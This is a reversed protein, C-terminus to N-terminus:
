EEVNYYFDVPNRDDWWKCAKGIYYTDVDNM